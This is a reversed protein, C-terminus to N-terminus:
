PKLTFGFKQGYDMGIALTLSPESLDYVSSWLTQTIGDRWMDPTSRVTELLTMAAEHSLTGAAAELGEGAKQYRDQGTGFDFDGPVLMFNAARESPILQMENNVYAVVLSGGSSDALHFHYDSDASAKMDYQKLLEVAEQVSAAKDLMMRIAVTTTIGKKGTEQRTPTQNLMLVAVALGKENVGDLAVYPAALAPFSKLLGEPLYGDGFGLFSLNAMSLSAYGSEPQTRVMMSPAPPLDLNRAFLRGGEPTGAVFTTCGLEPVKINVPIGKLLHSVLFDILESDDSIGQALLKDLGYEAQYNMTFFDKEATERRISMLSRVSSGLMLWGVVLVTLLLGSIAMLMRRGTRKKRTGM